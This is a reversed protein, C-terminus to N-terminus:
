MATVLRVSTPKKKWQLTMKEGSDDVCEIAKDFCDVKTRHLYLWHMGLLMSYSGLPLVNLHTTTLMCNLEFACARVWHHVRKKTSTALQVLWSKAHVEKRLGCNDVLVPNIYSYNSRPDILISVVQDCLMGDMEIISAHHDVQKNDMTAYIRPIRHGVDGVIHV